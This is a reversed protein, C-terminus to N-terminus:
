MFALGLGICAATLRHRVASADRPAATDFPSPFLLHSKARKQMDRLLLELDPLIPVRPMIGRKKRILHLTWQGLGVAEWNLRLAEGIRLGSYALFCVLDAM